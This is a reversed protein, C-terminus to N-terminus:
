PAMLYHRPHRWYEIKNITQGTKADLPAVFCEYLQFLTGRPLFPQSVSGIFTCCTTSTTLIVKMKKLNKKEKNKHCSSVGIIYDIFLPIRFMKMKAYSEILVLDKIFCIPLAASYAAYNIHDRQSCTKRIM